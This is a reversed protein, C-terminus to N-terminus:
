HLLIKNKLYSMFLNVNVTMLLYIARVPITLVQYLLLKSFINNAIIM